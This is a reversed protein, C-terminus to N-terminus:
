GLDGIPWNWIPDGHTESDLYHGDQKNHRVFKALFEVGRRSEVRWVAGEVPDLARHFGYTGLKGMADTISLSPGDSLLAAVPVGNDHCRGVFDDNLMRTSERLIDFGVFLEDPHRIDYRTGHAQLLWEGGVREGNMLMSKFRARRAAVWKAFLHHMLYHSDEARYGARILPYIEDDIRAVAVNSGDLKERVIVRDHEDRVQACLVRAQGDEIHWDSPGVRSGSLHPISGYAKRGLPKRAKEVISM